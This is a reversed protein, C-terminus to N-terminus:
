QCRPACCLHRYRQQQKQQQTPPRSAILYGCKVGNGTCVFCMACWNSCSVEQAGGGSRGSIGYAYCLAYSGVGVAVSRGDLELRGTRLSCQARRRGQVLRLTLPVLKRCYRLEPEVHLTAVGIPPKRKSHSSIKDGGGGAGRGGKKVTALTSAM